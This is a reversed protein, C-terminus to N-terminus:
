KKKAKKLMKALQNLDKIKKQAEHRKKNFTPVHAKRAYSSSSSRSNGIPDKVKRRKKKELDKRRRSLSKTTSESRLSFARDFFLMSEVQSQLASKKVPEEEVSTILAKMRNSKQSANPSTSDKSSRLEDLASGQQIVQKFLKSPM